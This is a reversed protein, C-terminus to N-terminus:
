PIRDQLRRARGGERDGSEALFKSTVSLIKLERKSESYKTEIFDTMIQYVNTKSYSLKPINRKTVRGAGSYKQQVKKKMLEKLIKKIDKDYSNSGSTITEFFSKLLNRKDPDNLTNNFELFDEIEEIPLIVGLQSRISPGVATKKCPLTIESLCEKLNKFKNTFDYQISSKFRKMLLQCMDMHVDVYDALINQKDNMNQRLEILKDFQNFLKRDAIITNSMKLPKYKHYKDLHNLNTHNFPSQGPSNLLDEQIKDETRPINPELMVTM